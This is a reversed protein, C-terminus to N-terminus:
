EYIQSFQIYQHLVLTLLYQQMSSMQHLLFPLAQSFKLQRHGKPDFM